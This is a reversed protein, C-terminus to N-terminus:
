TSSIKRLADTEHALDLKRIGMWFWIATLVASLIDAFPAAFLIGDLGWIMPFILVAPILLIVQRSLTLLTASYPRGIAQFFNASIIQFGVVPFGFLWTRLARTSFRLLEPDRNFASILLQPILNIMIFGLVAIATGATITLLVTKKVRKYLRAGYNYSIIPLMGQKLGIIPLVLLTQLSNIIGMGSVAIDGGYSLLGKNLVMNLISNAFQLLFGPLGLSAIRASIPLSLKLHKLKLKNNSHRSCFYIIVWISAIGQAIITALAAGAMGMDLGFIFIPDLVINLGASFFMTIMAFKPKGDARIFNNMGLSVIQFVTGIFIIRMYDVAYPMVADSAGFLHLIPILFIQGIVSFVIGVILMLLFANGMAQEAEEQRREGLRISFLTAGGTGLLIGVALILIMIPFSITIGALGEHSLQESNGIFIRDVVNYLANVMMGVIAPVSYKLLLKHIQESGLSDTSSM